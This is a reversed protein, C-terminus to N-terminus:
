IICETAVVIPLHARSRAPGNRTPSSASSTPERTRRVGIPVSLRVELSFSSRLDAQHKSRMSVWLVDSIMAGLTLRFYLFRYHTFHM